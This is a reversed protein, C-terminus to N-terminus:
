VKYGYDGLPLNWDRVLRRNQKLSLKEIKKQWKQSFEPNIREGDFNDPILMKKREEQSAEIFQKKLLPSREANQINEIYATTLRKNSRKEHILKLSEEADIGIYDCLEHIFKDPQRVFQEFVLIKVNGKGLVNAYARATDAYRIYGQPMRSIYWAQSMWQNIDFYRPPKGMLRAWKLGRGPTGQNFNRLMQVYFSKLFSTPERVFLLAKCDGFSKKFLKAQRKKKYLMGGALSEQALVPRLHHTAAYVLQDEISALRIDGSDFSRTQGFMNALAPRVSAPFGGGIFKGLYHVQSHKAFLNFRITTTATKPLGLHVFVPATRIQSM